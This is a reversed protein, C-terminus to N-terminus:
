KTPLLARLARNGSGGDVSLSAAKGESSYAERGRGILGRREGASAWTSLAQGAGVRAGDVLAREFIIRGWGSRTVRGRREGTSQAESCPSQPINPLAISANPVGITSGGNM